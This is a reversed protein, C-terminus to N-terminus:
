DRKVLGLYVMLGFSCEAALVLDQQTVQDNGTQFPLRITLERSRFLPM